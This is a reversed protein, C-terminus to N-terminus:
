PSPRMAFVGDFDNGLTITDKLFYAYQASTSVTQRWGERNLHIAFAPPELRLSDPAVSLAMADPDWAEVGPRSECHTADPKGVCRIWPLFSRSDGLHTCYDEMLLGIRENFDTIKPYLDNECKDRM